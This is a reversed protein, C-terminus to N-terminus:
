QFEQRKGPALQLRGPDTNSRQIMQEKLSWTGRQVVTLKVRTVPLTIVHARIDFTIDALDRRDLVEVHKLGEAPQARPTDSLDEVHSAQCTVCANGVIRGIGPERHQFRAVNDIAERRVM